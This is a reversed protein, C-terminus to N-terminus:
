PGFEPCFKLADCATCTREESNNKEWSDLIKGEQKEMGRCTEIRAVVKDFEDLSSAISEDSVPIVRIARKFRFDASLDPIPDKPSWDNIKREDESGPEPVVDTLGQELQMKYDTLDDSSISLENVYFLIGGIVPLSGPQRNRLHAYTQVQWSYMAWFDLGSTIKSAPRRMGKYDIIIEFEDPPSEDLTELVAQIIKNGALEPDNMKVHTIVDVIGQIEYRNFDSLNLEAPIQDAPFERSGKLRVEAHVIIPFLEPGLENIAIKARRYGVDQLDKDPTLGQVALRRLVSECLEEILDDEWPFTQLSVDEKYQKYAEELVGHIFQGFWLQVPQTSPLKGIRQYRYQLGCRMFGLLDGTLSFTSMVQAPKRYSLEM